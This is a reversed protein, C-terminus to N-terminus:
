LDKWTIKDYWFLRGKSDIIIRKNGITLAISRLKKNFHKQDRSLLSSYQGASLKYLWLLLVSKIGKKDALKEDLIIDYPAHGIHCKLCTPITQSTLFNRNNGLGGNNRMISGMRKRDIWMELMDDVKRRFIEELKNNIAMEKDGLIADNYSMILVYENSLKALNTVTAITLALIGWLGLPLSVTNLPLETVDTTAFLITTISSLTLLVEARTYASIMMGETGDRCRKAEEVLGSYWQEHDGIIMDSTEAGDKVHPYPKSKGKDTGSDIEYIDKDLASPRNNDGCYMVFGYRRLVHWMTNRVGYNVNELMINSWQYYTIISISMNVVFCFIKISAEVTSNQYTGCVTSVIGTITVLFSLVINLRSIVLAEFMYVDYKDSTVDYSLSLWAKRIKNFLNDSVRKKHEDPLRYISHCSNGIKLMIKTSNSRYEDLLTEVAKLMVHQPIAFYNTLRKTNRTIITYFLVNILIVLLTALIYTMISVTHCTESVYHVTITSNIAM